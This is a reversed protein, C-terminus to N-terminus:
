FSGSETESMMRTSVDALVDNSAQRNQAMSETPKWERCRRPSIFTGSLGARLSLLFTIDRNNTRTESELENMLYM